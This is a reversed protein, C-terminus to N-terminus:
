FYFLFMCTHILFMQHFIHNCYILLHYFYLEKKTDHSSSSLFNCIIKEQIFVIWNGVPSIVFNCFNNSKKHYSLSYSVKRRHELNRIRIHSPSIIILCGLLVGTCYCNLLYKRPPLPVQGNTVFFHSKLQIVQMLQTSLTIRKLTHSRLGKM